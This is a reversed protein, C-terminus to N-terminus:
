EELKKIIADTIFDRKQKNSYLEPYNKALWPNLKLFITADKANKLKLDKIAGNVVLNLAAKGAFNSLFGESINEEKLSKKEYGPTREQNKGYYAIERFHKVAEGKSKHSSVVKEGPKNMNKIVCWPSPDGKSNKYGDLFRVTYHEMSQSKSEESFLYEYVREKFNM